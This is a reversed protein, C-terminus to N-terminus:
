RLPKVANRLDQADYVVFDRNLFVYPALSLQNQRRLVYYDIPLPLFSELREPSFPGAMTREWREQWRAAATESFAVGQASKWDVWLAHRSQARFVGPYAARGADAFLFVSSGWTRNAAWEAMTAISQRFPIPARRLGPTYLLVLCALPPAILIIFRASGVSSRLLLITLLAALVLPVAFQILQAGNQIHLFDFIGTSLPLAFLLSFWGLAEWASRLLIARMGALGFLLASAAVTFLLARAPELRASWALHGVDLLVYSIPISLLGCFASGLVLWRFSSSLLPWCRVAAWLGLVFLALFQYIAGKSWSGVYLYPTYTRQFLALQPSVRAFVTDGGAGPQLQALNALLLVFVLFIPLTPRIVRRWSRDFFFGALLVGWFPLALVPDYLFGVGGALGALLPKEDAMLGMALVVLGFAFAGPVPERETLSVAPGTLTAGLNVIVTVILAYLHSLGTARALLFIGVLAAIRFVFEQGLLARRFPQRGAEHLFVTAEDYGTLALTPNTAVLDRSLLGPADVRELMPLYIQTQAELYSHGPFAWFELGAAAFIALSLLAVRLM